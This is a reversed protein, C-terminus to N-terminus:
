EKRGESHRVCVGVMPFGGNGKESPHFTPPCGRTNLAFLPPARVRLVRIYFFVVCGRTMPDSFFASIEGAKMM